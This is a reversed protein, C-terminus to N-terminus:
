ISLGCSKTDDQPDCLCRGVRTSGSSGATDYCRFLTRLHFGISKTGSLLCLGGFCWGMNVTVFHLQQASSCFERQVQMCLTLLLWISLIGRPVPLQVCLRHEFSNM